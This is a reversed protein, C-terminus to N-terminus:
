NADKDKLMLARIEDSCTQILDYLAEAIPMDLPKLKKRAKEDRKIKEELHKAAAELADRQIKQGIKQVEDQLLTYVVNGRASEYYESGYFYEVADPLSM